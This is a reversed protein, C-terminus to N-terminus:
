LCGVNKLLELSDEDTAVPFESFGSRCDIEHGGTLRTLVCEQTSLGNVCCGCGNEAFTSNPSFCVSTSEADTPCGFLAHIPSVMTAAMTAVVLLALSLKSSTLTVM